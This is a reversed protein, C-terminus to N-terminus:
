LGHDTFDVENLAMENIREPLERAVEVSVQPSDSSKTANGTIKPCDPCQKCQTNNHCSESNEIDSNPAKNILMSTKQDQHKAYLYNRLAM